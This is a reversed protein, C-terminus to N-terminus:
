SNMHAIEGGLSNFLMNILAMKCCTSELDAGYFMAHRNSKAAALLMRRSGCAPDYVTGPYNGNEDIIMQSIM